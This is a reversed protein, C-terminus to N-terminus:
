REKQQRQINLCPKYFGGVLYRGLLETTMMLKCGGCGLVFAWTLETCVAENRLCESPHRHEHQRNQADKKWDNM